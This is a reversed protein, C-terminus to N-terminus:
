SGSGEFTGLVIAEPRYVTLALREEALIAVLNKIFYDSHQDSVRVSSQQRDHVAAAQNYAGVSFQGATIATTTVVPLGWMQRPARADPRAFLYRGNEDKLLEIDEWDNPNLVVASPSYRLNEILTIGRRIADAMNDTAASPSTGQTITQIDEDTLLGTLNVGTGDGNLLQDDEVLHLGTLLFADCYARLSESDALIQRTAPLWHAITRVSVQKVELEAASQAKATTEATPAAANTTSVERVFEIAGESTPIVPFLDRVRPEAPPAALIGPVRTPQYLYGGVNGLSAGTLEGAKREFFSKVEIAGSEHGHAKDFSAYAESEVLRRGVSGSGGGPDLMPLRVAAAELEGVRKRVDRLATPDSDFDGAKLERELREFREMGSSFADSRKTFEAKLAAVGRTIEALENM